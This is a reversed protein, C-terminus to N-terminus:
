RGHRGGKPQKRVKVDTWGLKKIKEIGKQIRNRTEFEPTFEGALWRRVTKGHVDGIFHAAREASIAKEAMVKKLEIILDLM